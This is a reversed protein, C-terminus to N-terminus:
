IILVPRKGHTCVYFASVKIVGGDEDWWLTKGGLTKAQNSKGKPWPSVDVLHAEVFRELNRAARDEGSDGRYLEDSVTGQASAEEEDHPGEWPKRPLSSIISNKPALVTTKKTMDGLRTAIAEISRTLGSFESISRDTSMFDSLLVGGGQGRSDMVIQHGEPAQINLTLDELQSKQHPKQLYILQASSGAFLLICLFLLHTIATSTNRMTSTSIAKTFRFSRQHKAALVYRHMCGTM